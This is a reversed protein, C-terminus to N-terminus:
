PGGLREVAKRLEDVEARLAVNQARASPANASQWGHEAAAALWKCGFWLVPVTKAATWGALIFPLAIMAAAFRAFRFQRARASIQEVPVRDALKVRVPVIVDPMAAM